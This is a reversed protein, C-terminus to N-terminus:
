NMTTTLLKYNLDYLDLKDVTRVAVIKGNLMAVNKLENEYHIKTKLRGDVSLEYLQRGGWEIVIWESDPLPCLRLSSHFQSLPTELSWLLDMTNSNRVDVRWQHKSTNSITLGLQENVNYKIDFIQEDYACTIPTQWRKDRNFSLLSYEDVLTSGWYSIFLKQEFCTCRFYRENRYLEMGPFNELKMTPVDLIFLNSLTLIIFVKLSSSWCMDYVENDNWVLECLRRQYNYLCLNPYEETLIYNENTALASLTGRTLHFQKTPKNLNYLYITTKSVKVYEDEISLPITELHIFRKYFQIFSLTIDELQHKITEIQRRNANKDHVLQLLKQKIEELIKRQEINYCIFEKEYKQASRKIERRKRLCLQDILQHSEKRWQELERLPVQTFEPLILLNIQHILENIQNAVPDIQNHLSQKHKSFHKSCLDRRCHYCHAEIDRSCSKMQCKNLKETSLQSSM